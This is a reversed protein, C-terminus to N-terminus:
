YHSLFSPRQEADYDHNTYAVLDSESSHEHMAFTDDPEREESAVRADEKRQVPIGSRRRFTLPRTLRVFVARLKPGESEIFKPLIFTGTISVGISVEALVCLSMWFNNYSNDAINEINRIVYVM